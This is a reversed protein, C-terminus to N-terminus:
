NRIINVSRWEHELIAYLWSDQWEGKIWHHERLYGEQQMGIKQMVRASAINEPHCTAFIRHLGLEHFGFSVVAKVAETAYGQGWFEKTFSYGISGIQNDTDRVSIRCIGILQKQPKLTVALAFHQRPKEGQLSIEKQLFNKTDEETNPGFTLYRVVEADAAYQHVEQWDSEVFDRLILRKTEIPIM